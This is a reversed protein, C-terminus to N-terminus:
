PTTLGWNHSRKRQANLTCRDNVADAASAVAHQKVIVDTGGGASDDNALIKFVTVGTGALATAVVTAMFNQFDRMDVWAIDTAATGTRTYARVAMNSRGVNTDLASAM